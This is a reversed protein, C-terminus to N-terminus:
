YNFFTYIYLQVNNRGNRMDQAQQTQEKSLILM